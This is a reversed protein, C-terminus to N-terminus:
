AETQIAASAAAQSRTIETIHATDIAVKRRVLHDRVIARAVWGGLQGVAAGGMLAAVARSLVTLPANGAMLGAVIALVFALLGIQAAIKRVM